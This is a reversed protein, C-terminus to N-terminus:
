GALNQLRALYASFSEREEVFVNFALFDLFPLELYETSPFNVYTVLADPDEEKAAEYLRGLFREVRRRGHWRVIPAPIENGVSYGLVAAHGACSRVGEKMRCEISRTRSRADLLWRPPVTYTRVTNIGSEAMAAFDAGVRGPDPFHEGARNPRFTGYAVGKVWLKRGGAALFKGQVVPRGPTLQEGAPADGDTAPRFNPDNTWSSRTTKM